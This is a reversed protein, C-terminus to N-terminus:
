NLYIAYIAYSFSSPPLLHRGKHTYFACFSVVSLTSLHGIVLSRISLNKTQLQLVLPGIYLSYVLEYPIGGDNAYANCTQQQFLTADPPCQGKLVRAILFLSWTFIGSIMILEELRLPLWELRSKLTALMRDRGTLRLFHVTGYLFFSIFFCVCFVMAVVLCVHNVDGDLPLILCCYSVSLSLTITLSLFRSSFPDHTHLFNEGFSTFGMLGMRCVVLATFVLIAPSFIFPNVQSLNYEHYEEMIEEQFIPFDCGTWRKLWLCTTIKDSTKTKKKPFVPEPLSGIRNGERDSIGLAMAVSSFIGRTPQEIDGEENDCPRISTM